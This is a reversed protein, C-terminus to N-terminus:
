GDTAGEGLANRLADAADCTDADGGDGIRWEREFEAALRAVKRLRALEHWLALWDARVIRQGCYADTICVEISVTRDPM